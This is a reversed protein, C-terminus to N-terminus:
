PSEYTNKTLCSNAWKPLLSSNITANFAYKCATVKAVNWKSLNKDYGASLSLINSMDTVKSVDWNGIDRDFSTSNRFMGKMITVNSVDWGSVRGNFNFFFTEDSKVFSGLLEKMDTINSTDIHLLNPTDNDASGNGDTDVADRIMKKLEATTTPTKTYALRMDFSAIAKSNRKVTYNIVKKTLDEFKSNRNNDPTGSLSIGLSSSKKTIGSPLSPEITYSDGTKHDPLAVEIAPSISKNIPLVLSVPDTGSATSSDSEIECSVLMTSLAIVILLMSVITKLKM